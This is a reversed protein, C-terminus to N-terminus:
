RREVRTAMFNISNSAIEERTRAFAFHIEDKVLKGVFLIQDRDDDKSIRKFTIVDGDGRVRGEQIPVPPNDGLTVTGTLKEENTSFTFLLHITDGNPVDVVAQWSGDVTTQAHTTPVTALLLWLFFTSGTTLGAKQHM